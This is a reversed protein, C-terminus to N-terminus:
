NAEMIMPTEGVGAIQKVRPYGVAIRRVDITAKEIDLSFLRAEPGQSALVGIANNAPIRATRQRKALDVAWIEKAPNKHSGESGKDHMTVFLTGSDRHVATVQMGGPRWNKRKDATDVLPWAAEFSPADGEMRVGYVNGNYSVFYRQEGWQEPHIFIPDSDPDFFKTSRHRTVEQGNGDLRITLLTGDGCITSLRNDKAWAHISWCGPTPIEGVFKKASLDVVAVSTAPTANQIYLFRGDTSTALMGRYPIAQAHKPPIEIEAKLELSRADHIEVVDARPGRYLRPHYTTVVYISKGDPSLATLGGFGTNIMGLYSGKRGDLIHLRGDVMHMFAPDTVYLRYGDPPSLTEVKIEEEALPDPKRAEASHVGVTWLFGLAAAALGSGFRNM